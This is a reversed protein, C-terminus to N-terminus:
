KQVLGWRELCIKEWYSRGRSNIIHPASGEFHDDTHQSNPITTVEMPREHLAVINVTDPNDLIGMPVTCAVVEADQVLLTAMSNLARRISRGVGDGTTHRRSGYSKCSPAQPSLTPNSYDGNISQVLSVLSTLIRFEDLKSLRESTPGVDSESSYPSHVESM